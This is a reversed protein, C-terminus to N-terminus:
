EPLDLNKIKYYYISAQTTSLHFEKGAIRFIDPTKGGERLLERCREYVEMPITSAERKETEQRYHRPRRANFAEDLTAAEHREYDIYAKRMRRHAWEPLPFGVEGCIRVARLLTIARDDERDLEKEVWEKPTETALRLDELWEMIEWTFTLAATLSWEEGKREPTERFAHFSPLSALRPPSVMCRLAFFAEADTCKLEKQIKAVLNRVTDQTSPKRKAAM